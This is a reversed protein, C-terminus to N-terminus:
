PLISCLFGTIPPLLRSLVAIRGITVSLCSLVPDQMGLQLASLRSLPHNIPLNSLFSTACCFRVDTSPMKETRQCYKQSVSVSLPNGRSSILHRSLPVKGNRSAIRVGNCTPLVGRTAMGVGVGTARQLPSNAKEMWVSRTAGTQALATPLGLSGAAARICLLVMAEGVSKFRRTQRAVEFAVQTGSDGSTGRRQFPVLIEYWTCPSAKWFTGGPGNKDINM